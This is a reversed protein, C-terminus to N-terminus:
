ISLYKERKYFYQNEKHLDPALMKFNWFTLNLITKSEENNFGWKGGKMEERIRM